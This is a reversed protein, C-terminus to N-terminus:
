RREGGDSFARGAKVPIPVVRYPGTYRRRRFYCEVTVALGAMIVVLASAALLTEARCHGTM